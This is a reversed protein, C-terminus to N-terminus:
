PLIFRVEKFEYRCENGNEFRLRLHGTPEVDAIEAMFEGRVDAYRHLGEKRYLHAMYEKRLTDTDGNKIQGYLTCFEEMIQTLLTEKNQEKGTAQLLSIPNPADSHFEKQNVNLGM